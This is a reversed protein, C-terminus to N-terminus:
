CVGYLRKVVWFVIMAALFLRGAWLSNFGLISRLM